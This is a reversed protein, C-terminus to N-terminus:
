IVSEKSATNAKWAGHVALECGVEFELAGRIMGRHWGVPDHVAVPGDHVFRPFWEIDALFLHSRPIPVHQSTRSM